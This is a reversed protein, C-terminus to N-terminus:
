ILSKYFARIAYNVYLYASRLVGLHEIQRYIDWQWHLIDLKRASVSQERVRYVATVCGANRAFLGSTKLIDLWMPYDEHHIVQFYFKGVKQTDYIGTLNGIVNGKLLQAYNVRAPAHVIRNSRRGSDTMKEYDSYVIVTDDRDFLPLQSELKHPLWIDDSDLFAIFRGRAERVGVNRPSAPNGSPHDNRLLRVRPDIAAYHEVLAVSDDTSADDVVLLEWDKYTQALVSEVSEGVYRSSNHMPMVISVTVKSM